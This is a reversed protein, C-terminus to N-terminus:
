PPSSQHVGGTMTVPGCGSGQRQTECTEQGEDENQPRGGPGAEERGLGDIGIFLGEETFFGRVGQGRARGVTGPGTSGGSGTSGGGGAGGIRGTSDGANGYGGGAGAGGGGEQFPILDADAAAEGPFEAGAKDPSVGPLAVVIHGLRIFGAQAGGNCRGEKEIGPGILVQLEVAAYFGGPGEGAGICKQGPCGIHCCGCRRNSGCGLVKGGDVQLDKFEKCVKGPIIPGIEPEPLMRHLPPHAIEEAGCIYQVKGGDIHRIGRGLPLSGDAEPRQNRDRAGLVVEPSIQEKRSGQRCIGVAAGAGGACTGKFWLVPTIRALRVRQV